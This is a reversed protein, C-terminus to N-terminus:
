RAPSLWGRYQVLRGMGLPLAVAIDFTFRGAPDTGEWAHGGPATCRPLPLGLISWGRVVLSLGSERATPAMAVAFAGLREVIFCGDASLRLTSAMRHEGFHRTWREGQAHPRIDLRLPIGTGAPPFRLLRSCLRGLATAPGEITAEGTFTGGQHLRRVAAPLTAFATEGLARAFLPTM